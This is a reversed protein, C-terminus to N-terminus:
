FDFDHFYWYKSLKRFSSKIESMNAETNVGLVKYPNVNLEFSSHRHPRFLLIIFLNALIFNFHM